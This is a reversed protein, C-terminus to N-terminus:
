RVRVSGVEDEFDIVIQREANAFDPTEWIDDETQVFHEPVDVQGSSVRAELQVAADDPVDIVFSGRTSDINADLAVNAGIRLEFDNVSGDLELKSTAGAAFDIQVNGPQGDIKVEYQNDSAPLDVIVDGVSMEISLGTLQLERLDLTTEGTDAEGELSLRLPIRRSLGLEWQLDPRGAAFWAAPGHEVDLSVTKDEDGRVQLQLEGLHQVTGEILNESDAGLAQILTTARRLAIEIEATTATDLRAIVQETQVEAGPRGGSTQETGGQRMDWAGSTALALVLALALAGAGLVASLRPSRRGVLLDLGFMILFVPWLRFIDGISVDLLGLRNFLWICGIGILLIPWFFSRYKRRGVPIGADLATAAARTPTGTEAPAGHRMGTSQGSMGAGAPPPPLNLMPPAAYGPSANSPSVQETAPVSVGAPLHIRANGHPELQTEQAWAQTQASGNGVAQYAAALAARLAEASDPREEPPLALGWALVDSMAVPIRPDVGHAPRQPDPQRSVVAAARTLADSPPIGTLLHYLTASLAYLDSRADTGTGNIQELPAYLPTYGFVSGSSTVQVRDAAARKALGFDLLIIEGAETLKLNQPKIDRHIVPPNQQHLYTLARLLQDAWAMVQDVPFPRGQEALLRGLDDGPFFEMVLFQGTEDAFYDIVKPLAPHRLRALLQAEREFARTSHEGQMTTQKLAVVAKLRQDTAAYVAGMGGQGILREVLYRGNVLMGATLLHITGKTTM